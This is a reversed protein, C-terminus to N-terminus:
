EVLRGLFVKSVETEEVGCFFDEAAAMFEERGIVGDKNTDITNFSLIVEAESVGPATIKFYDKFEKVSIQGNKNTDIADFMMNHSKDFSAKNYTPTSALIIETITKAAEGVPIKEGPKMKLMEAFKAFEKKTAEAQEETMQSHEALRRGMLEYDENSIHGDKNVDLTSLRTRMKRLFYAKQEETYSM